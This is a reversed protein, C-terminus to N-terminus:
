ASPDRLTPRLRFAAIVGLTLLGIGGLGWGLADDLGRLPNWDAPLASVVTAKHPPPPPRVAPQLAHAVGVDDTPMEDTALRSPLGHIAVRSGDLRIATLDLHGGARLQSMELTHSGGDADGLEVVSVGPRDDDTRPVVTWETAEGAYTWRAVVAAVPEALQIMLADRVPATTTAHDHWYQLVRPAPECAGTGSQGVVLASTLVAAALALKM